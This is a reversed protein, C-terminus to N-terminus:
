GGNRIPALIADVNAKVLDAALAPLQNVEDAWRFEIIINKGRCTRCGEIRGSLCEDSEDVGFSSWRGFFRRARDQLINARAGAAAAGGLGAIFARRRM